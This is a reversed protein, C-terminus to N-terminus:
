YVLHKRTDPSSACCPAIGEVGNIFWFCHLTLNSKGWCKPTPSSWDKTEECFIESRGSLTYNGKCTFEVSGGYNYGNKVNAQQGNVPTGPDGCSIVTFFILIFTSLSKCQTICPLVPMVEYFHVGEEIYM